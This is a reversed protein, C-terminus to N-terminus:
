KDETPYERDLAAAIGDLEAQAPKLSTGGKLRGVVRMGMGVGRNWFLPETWQGIPVIVSTRRWIVDDSPVVGIITYLRENLTLSRGLVHPDAGFRTKWFNSTLVVVPAGGRRDEDAGFTRGVVPKVGLTAFLDASAMQGRLREPIAQGTLTFTDGRYAAMVDFSRSRERWDLFNPYSVSAERFQPMSTYLQLLRDPEAYPLPRLLVANVISFMATNAGIGLALAIVAVATLAPAKLLTRAGFRLDQLLRGMTEGSM